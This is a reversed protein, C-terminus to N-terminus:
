RDEVECWWWDSSDMDMDTVMDTYIGMRFGMSTVMLMVRARIRSCFQEKRSDTSSIVLRV